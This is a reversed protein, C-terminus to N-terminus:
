RTVLLHPPKAYTGFDVWRAIVHPERDALEPTASVRDVFARVQTVDIQNLSTTPVSSM